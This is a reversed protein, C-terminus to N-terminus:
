GRAADKWGAAWREFVAFTDIAADVIEAEACPDAPVAALQALYERWMAGTQAGHGLFFLRGAPEDTPFLHDLGRALQRGGLASGAVVYLAGLRRHPTKLRPIYACDLIKERLSADLGLADLDVALWRSRMDGLATELEFPRYFGQLRCLLLIYSSRDILGAKIAGFGDHGHMREHVVVTADRLRCHLSSTVDTHRAAKRSALADLNTLSDGPKKRRVVFRRVRWITGWSQFYIQEKPIPWEPKTAGLAKVRLRVM